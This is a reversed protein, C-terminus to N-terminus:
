GHVQWFQPQRFFAGVGFINNTNRPASADFIETRKLIIKPRRQQFMLRVFRTPYKYIPRVLIRGYIEWRNSAGYAVQSYLQNAQPCLGHNRYTDEHSGTAFSVYYPRRSRPFNNATSWVIGRCRCDLAHGSDVHSIPCYPYFKENSAWSKSASEPPPVTCTDVLPDNLSAM